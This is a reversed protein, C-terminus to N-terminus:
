FYKGLTPFSYSEGGNEHAVKELSDFNITLGTFYNFVVVGLHSYRKFLDNIRSGKEIGDSVIMLVNNCRASSGENNQSDNIYKLAADLTELINSEGSPSPLEDVANKFIQKNIMTAQVLKDLCEILKHTRDNHHYVINFFDNQQFTEILKKVTLKAIDFPQGSASGSLDLAITVDKASSIAQNYWNRRRADYFTTDTGETSRSFNDM